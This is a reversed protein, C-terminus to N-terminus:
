ILYPRSEVTEDKDKDLLLSPKKEFPPKRRAEEDEQNTSQEEKEDFVESRIKPPEGKYDAKHDGRLDGEDLPRHAPGDNDDELLDYFRANELEFDTHMEERYNYISSFNLSLVDEHRGNLTHKFTMDKEMESIDSAWHMPITELNNLIDILNYSNMLPQPVYKGGKKNVRLREREFHQLEELSKREIFLRTEQFQDEATYPDLSGKYAEYMSNFSEVVKNMMDPHFVENPESFTITSKRNEDEKIRSECLYDMRMTKM